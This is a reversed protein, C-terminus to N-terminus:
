QLDQYFYDSCLGGGDPVACFSLSEDAEDLKLNFNYVYRFPGLVFIVVRPRHTM